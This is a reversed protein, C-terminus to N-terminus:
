SNVFNFLAALTKSISLPAANPPRIQGMLAPFAARQTRQSGQWM